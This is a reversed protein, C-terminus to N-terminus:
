SRKSFTKQKRQEKTKVKDSNAIRVNKKNSIAKDTSVKCYNNLFINVVNQICKFVLPFSSCGCVDCIVIGLDVEVLRKMILQHLTYKQSHLALFKEESSKTYLISKFVKSAELVCSFFHDSPWRLGGRDQDKLYQLESEESFTFDLSKDITMIDLCGKCQNFLSENKFVTYGAMAAFGKQESSIHEMDDCRSLEM